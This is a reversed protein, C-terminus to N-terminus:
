LMRLETQLCSQMYFSCTLASSVTHLSLPGLQLFVAELQCESAFSLQKHVAIGLCWYLEVNPQVCQHHFAQIPRGSGSHCCFAVFYLECLDFQSLQFCSQGWMFCCRRCCCLAWGCLCTCSCSCIWKPKGKKSWKWRKGLSFSCRVLVDSCVPCHFWSLPPRPEM